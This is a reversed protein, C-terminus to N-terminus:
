YIIKSKMFVYISDIGPFPLPITAFTQKDLANEIDFHINDIPAILQMM